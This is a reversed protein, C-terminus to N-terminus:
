ATQRKCNVCPQKLQFYRQAIQADSCRAVDVPLYFDANINNDGYGNRVKGCYAGQTEPLEPLVLLQRKSHNLSASEVEPQLHSDIAHASKM